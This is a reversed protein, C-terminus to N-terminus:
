NKKIKFGEELTKGRHTLGPYPTYICPLPLCYCRPNWNLGTKEPIYFAANNIHITSFPPQKIKSPFLLHQYDANNKIKLGTFVLIAAFLCGSIAYTIRNLVLQNTNRLVHVPIVAISCLVLLSGYAFRPDPSIVLWSLTNFLCAIFIILLPQKLQWFHHKRLLAITKIVGLIALILIVQDILSLYHFWTPLWNFSGMAKTSEIAQYETSVRNYYRIYELIEDVYRAPVQWDPTNFAFAKSPFFPYGSAIYTRLLLGSTLLIGISSFIIIQKIKNKHYFYIFSAIPLILFPYNIIRVAFLFFPWIFWEPAFFYPTGSSTSQITQIVLLIVVITTIMDYNSNAASGRLLPWSLICLLLIVLIGISISRQNFVKGVAYLNNLLYATFWTCILGNLASFFNLSNIEPLFLALVSFWASQFGYRLHLNAIGPVTKYTKSWLLIQMHYSDSDDQIVPGSAMVALLLGIIIIGSLALPHINSFDKRIRKFIAPLDKRTFYTGMLVLGLLALTTLNNLPWILQALQSVTTFLVLGTIFYNILPRPSINSDSPEQTLGIFSYFVFGALLSAISILLQLLLILLM